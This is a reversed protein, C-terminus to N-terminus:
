TSREGSADQRQRRADAHPDQLVPQIVDVPDDGPGQGVRDDGAQQGPHIRAQHQEGGPDQREMGRHRDRGARQRARRQKIRQPPPHLLQHVPPEVPCPIVSVPSHGRERGPQLVGDVQIRDAGVQEGRRAPRQFRGVRRHPDLVACSVAATAPRKGRSRRPEGAVQAAASATTITTSAAAVTTSATSTRRSRSSFPPCTSSTVAGNPHDAHDDRPALRAVRHAPQQCAHARQGQEGVVPRQVGQEIVAEPM